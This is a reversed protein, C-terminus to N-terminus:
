HKQTWLSSYQVEVHIDREGTQSINGWEIKANKAIKGKSRMARNVKKRRWQINQRFEVIVLVTRMRGITTENVLRM